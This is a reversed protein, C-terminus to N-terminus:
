ADDRSRVLLLPTESRHLVAAAVSGFFVRSLGTRGHSALAILDANREEAVHVIREAAVGTELVTEADIGKTKLITQIKSLYKRGAAELAEIQDM